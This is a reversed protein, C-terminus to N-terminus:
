ETMVVANREALERFIRVLAGGTPAHHHFGSGIRAVEQMAEQEAEDSFTITEIQLGPLAAVAEAAARYTEAVAFPEDIPQNAKGDTLLIMVPLSNARREPGNLAAIGARIGEAINTRGAVRYDTMSPGRQDNRSYLRIRQKIGSYSRLLPTDIRSAPIVIGGCKSSEDASYTVLAVREDDDTRGLLNLFINVSRNLSAWRSLTAHPGNCVSLGFPGKIGDVTHSMSGSRDIVLCFDRQLHVARAVARPAFASTDFIGNFLLGVSGSPSDTTRRGTVRASNSPIGGEEFSFAEDSGQESRGFVIDDDALLLPEGAVHNMQTAQRAVVTAQETTGGQALTAVAARAGADTSTRLETRTLQMYAVNISFAAAGIFIVLTILILIVMAGRRDRRSQVCNKAPM